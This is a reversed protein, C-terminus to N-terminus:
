RIERLPRTLASLPAFYNVTEGEVYTSLIGVLVTTGDERQATLGAGSSGPRLSCDAEYGDSLTLVDGDAVTCRVTVAPGADPWKWGAVHYAGSPRPGRFLAATGPGTLTEAVTIVAADNSLNAPVFWLPNVAHNTVTLKVGRWVLNVNEAGDSFCHAATIVLHTGAIATGSCSWGNETGATFVQVPIVDGTSRSALELASPSDLTLGRAAAGYGSPTLGFTFIFAMTFVLAPVGFQWWHIRTEARQTDGYALSPEPIQPEMACRAPSTICPPGSPGNKAPPLLASANLEPEM